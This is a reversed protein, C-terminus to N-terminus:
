NQPSTQTDKHGFKVDPPPPRSTVKSSQKPGLWTSQKCSMNEKVHSGFKNTESNLGDRLTNRNNKPCEEFLDSM